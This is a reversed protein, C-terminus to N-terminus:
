KLILSNLMSLKQKDTQGNNETSHRLLSYSSNTTSHVTGTYVNM